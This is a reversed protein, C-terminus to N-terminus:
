RKLKRWASLDAPTGDARPRRPRAGTDAGPSIKVGRAEEARPKPRLQETFGMVASEPIRWAAHKPDGPLKYAGPFRDAEAWGRITSVSRGLRAGVEAVSWERAPESGAGAVDGGAAGLAELLAEAFAAAAERLRVRAADTMRVCARWAQM